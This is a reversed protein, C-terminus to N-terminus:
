EITKSGATKAHGCVESQKRKQYLQYSNFINHWVSYFGGAVATVPSLFTYGLWIIFVTNKQGLAQGGEIQEGYRAGIRKGIFFQLLCCILSIVAIALLYEISVDSHMIAKVTVAIALSLAVAWLYFALDRYQRLRDSVKPLFYRVCWAAILPCILLPFVKRIIMGFTPLFTFGEHPHALPLLAPATIAIAANIIITYTTIDAPNGELKRTVVAAATATPCLLCLMASEIIIRYRTDAFYVLVCALLAFFGLQILIHWLHWRRLRLDRPAISLFTLFLMSFILVPQVIEVAENALKHTPALWPINVYVFYAVVGMIIAVPLTWNKLFTIIPSKETKEQESMTKYMM